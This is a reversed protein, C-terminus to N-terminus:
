LVFVFSFLESKNIPKNRFFPEELVELIIFSNKELKIDFAILDAKSFSSLGKFQKGNSCIAM